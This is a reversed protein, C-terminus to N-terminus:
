KKDQHKSAWIVFIGVALLVVGVVILLMGNTTQLLASYYSLGYEVIFSAPIISFPLLLGIIIMMVGAIILATGIIKINDM